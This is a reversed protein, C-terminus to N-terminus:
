HLPGVERQLDVVLSRIDEAQRPPAGALYTRFDTLAAQPCELEYLLMGRERRLELGQPDTALLLDYIELAHQDRQQDLYIAKLNRLLRQLIARRDARRLARGLTKRDPEEGARVLLRMLEDETLSGGGHYPDVVLVGDDVEIRVLFHGPFDAGAADIDLRDTLALYLIALSVPIGLRREIVQDLLCNRPDYFHDANGRLDLEEFLFRHLALLRGQLSAGPLWRDEVREAWGDVVRLYREVDLSPDAHRAVILAAELLDFDRGSQHLFQELQQAARM